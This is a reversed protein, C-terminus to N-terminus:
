FTFEFSPSVAGGADALITNVLEELRYFVFACQNAMSGCIVVYSCMCILNIHVVM